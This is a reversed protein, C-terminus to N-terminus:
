KKSILNWQDPSLTLSWELPFQCDPTFNQPQVGTHSLSLMNRLLCLSREANAVLFELQSCHGQFSPQAEGSKEASYAHVVTPQLKETVCVVLAAQCKMLFYSTRKMLAVNRLHLFIFLSYVAWKMWSRFRYLVKCTLCAVKILSEVFCAGYEVEISFCVRKLCPTIRDSTSDRGLTETATTHATNQDKIYHQWPGTGELTGQFAMTM